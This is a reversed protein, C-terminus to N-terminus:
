KPGRLVQEIYQSVAAEQEPKLKAKRSMKSMWIKWDQDSYNAPNYFKHCKACKAVYLKHGEEFPGKAPGTAGAPATCGGVALFLILYISRVPKM